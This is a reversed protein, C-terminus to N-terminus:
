PGAQTVYTVAFRDMDELDKKASYRAPHLYDLSEEDLELGTDNAADDTFGYRAPMTFRKNLYHWFFCTAIFTIAVIIVGEYFFKILLIGLVILQYLIISFLLTNSIVPFLVGLGDYDQRHVYILDYSNVFIVVCFYLIGFPIILPVISSYSMTILFILCHRSMVIPINYHAALNKLKAKERPTSAFYRYYVYRMFIDVPHLLVVFQTIGAVTLIYNMFFISQSAITKAILVVVGQVSLAALGVLQDAIGFFSTALASVFLVNIVYFMFLKRFVEVDIKSHTTPRYLNILKVLIIKLIIFCITLVIGPLIAGILNSLQDPVYGFGPIISALTDLNAFSTILATIAVWFILLFFIILHSIWYMISKPIRGVTHNMWKIDHAHPAPFLHVREMYSSACAIAPVKHRFLIYAFPKYNKKFEEQLHEIQQETDTIRDQYYPLAPTNNFCKFIKGLWLFKDPWPHTYQTESSDTEKQLASEYAKVWKMREEKLQVLQKFKQVRRIGLIEGPYEKNFYEYLESNNMSTPVHTAFVAYNYSGPGQKIMRRLGTYKEWMKWIVFFCIVSNWLVSIAHVWFRGNDFPVILDEISLAALGKVRLKELEVLGLVPSIFGGVVPTITGVTGIPLSGVVPTITGVTGIPLPGAVPTVANPILASIVPTVNDVLTSGVTTVGAAVTTVGAAVPTISETIPVIAETIPVIAAAVPTVTGVVGDTINGVIDGAVPLSHILNSIIEPLKTGSATGDVPLTILLSFASILIIMCLLHRLVMITMAADFGHHKCINETDRTLMPWIWSFWSKPFVALKSAGFVRKMRRRIFIFVLFLVVGVTFNTILGTYLQDTQNKTQPNM